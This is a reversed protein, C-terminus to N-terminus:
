ECWRGNQFSICLINYIKQRGWFQTNWLTSICVDYQILVHCFGCKIVCIIKRFKCSVQERNTWHLWSNTDWDWSFAKRQANANANPGGLQPQLCGSHRNRGDSQRYIYWHWKKCRGSVNIVYHTTGWDWSFATRQANTNPGGTQNQLCGSHRNRDDSQRNIYFHWKNCRGSVNIVTHLNTGESSM